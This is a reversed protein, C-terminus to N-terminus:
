RERLVKEGQGKMRPLDPEVQPEGASKKAIQPENLDSKGESELRNQMEIESKFLVEEYSMENRCKRDVTSTKHNRKCKITSCYMEQYRAVHIYIYM